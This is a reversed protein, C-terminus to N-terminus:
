TQNGYWNGNKMEGVILVATNNKTNFDVVHCYGNSNNQSFTGTIKTGSESVFIGKGHACTIGNIEKVEGTYNGKSGNIM